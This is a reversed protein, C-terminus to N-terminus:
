DSLWVESLQHNKSDWYILRSPGEQKFFEIGDNSLTVSKREDPGCGYGKGCATVYTGPGALKLGENALEGGPNTAEAQFLRTQGEGKTTLRVFPAFGSGDSRVLLFAEGENGSGDFNGRVVVYRNPDQLRWQQNIESSEPLRWGSPLVAAVTTSASLNLPFALLFIYVLVHTLRNKKTIQIRNKKM